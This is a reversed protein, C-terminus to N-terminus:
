RSPRHTFLSLEAAARAAVADALNDFRGLELLKGNHSIRSRWRGQHLTVGVHGSAKSPRRRVCNEANQKHSVARLNAIRNDFGNRNVHDIEDPCEGHVWLWVLRHAYYLVGDVSIMAYRLGNARGAMAGVPQGGISVRRIFIGSDQDYVFLERLRAQSPLARRNTKSM